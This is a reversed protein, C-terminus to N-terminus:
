VRVLTPSKINGVHSSSQGTPSWRLKKSISMLLQEFRSIEKSKIATMKKM